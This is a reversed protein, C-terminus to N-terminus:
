LHPKNILISASIVEDHLRDPHVSYEVDFRDLESLDFITPVRLLIKEFHKLSFLLLKNGDPQLNQLQFRSIAQYRPWGWSPDLLIADAKVDAAVDFFDGHIFTIKDDVGYVNANHKAMAIREANAEIAIVKKGTRAHAIAMGGVGCFGDVITEADPFLAAQELATQEPMVTHLGDADIMIGEDFRQFYDYRKDWYRQLKVDFPCKCASM